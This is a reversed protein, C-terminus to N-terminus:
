LGLVKKVPKRLWRPFHGLAEQMSENIHRENAERAELVHRLLKEQSAEDLAKIDELNDPSTNLEKVIQQWTDM